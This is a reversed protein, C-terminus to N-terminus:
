LISTYIYLHISIYTYIYLYLYIHVKRQSPKLGDMLHCISRENNAASFLILEKNIFEDYTISSVNYDIHVDPEM